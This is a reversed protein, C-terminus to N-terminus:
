RHEPDFAVRDDPDIKKVAKTMEKRVKKWDIDKLKFFHGCQEELEDLAFAMDEAYVDEHVPALGSATAEPSLFLAFCALLQKMGLFLPNAGRAQVQSTM